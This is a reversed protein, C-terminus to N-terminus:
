FMASGDEVMWDLKSSGAVLVKFGVGVLGDFWGLAMGLRVLVLLGVGAGSGLAMGLDVLWDVATGVRRSGENGDWGM